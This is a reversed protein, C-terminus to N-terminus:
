GDFRTVAGVAFRSRYSGCWIWQDAKYEHSHGEEQPIEPQNHAPARSLAPAVEGGLEREFQHTAPDSVM